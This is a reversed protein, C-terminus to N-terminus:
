KIDNYLESDGNATVSNPNLSWVCLGEFGMM